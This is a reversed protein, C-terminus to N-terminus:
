AAAEVEDDRVCDIAERLVEFGADPKVGREALMRRFARAGPVAHFAGVMHRTIAHLRGGQALHAEIYPQM